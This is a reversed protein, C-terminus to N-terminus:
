ADLEVGGPVIGAEGERGASAACGLAALERAFSEFRSRFRRGRMDEPARIVLAARAGGGFALSASWARGSDGTEADFRAEIRGRGGPICPLQIRLGGKFAVSDLAFRFPLLIWGGDRGKAHNFLGLRDADSLATAALEADSSPAIRTALAKLFSALARPLGESPISLDLDRDLDFGGELGLGPEERGFGGPEEGRSHGSASGDQGDGGSGPGSGGGRGDGARDLASLAEDDAAIGKSEMRAALEVLGEAEDRGAGQARLAARRVRGLAGSDPSM